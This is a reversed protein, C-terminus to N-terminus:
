LARRRQVSWHGAWYEFLVREDPLASGLALCLRVQVEDELFRTGVEVGVVSTPEGLRLDGVPVREVRVSRVLGDRDPPGWDLLGRASFQHLDTPWEPVVGYPLTYVRNM